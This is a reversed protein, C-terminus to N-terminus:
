ETYLGNDHGGVSRGDNYGHVVLDFTLRLTKAFPTTSRGHPNKKALKPPANVRARRSCMAVLNGVDHHHM